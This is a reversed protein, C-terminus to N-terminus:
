AAEGPRSPDIGWAKTFKGFWEHERISAYEREIEVTQAWIDSLTEADEDSIVDQNCIDVAMNILQWNQRMLANSRPGLSDLDGWARLKEAILRDSNSGIM